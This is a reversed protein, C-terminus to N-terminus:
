GVAGRGHGHQHLRQRGDGGPTYTGAMCVTPNPDASSYNGPGTWSFSGNGTGQLTVCSTTCTITGGAAQAGPAANDLLVEASATSTCGNSGTVTLVYTGAVSVTPNQDISAFNNPGTWSYSGNGSGMLMVSTTTCTLTGGAAQAGPVDVDELVTTSASNSCGNAATVTLTYVGATSVVPAADASVFGNPGTWQFSVIGPAFFGNLTVTPNSCSLVGSLADVEPVDNDLLVEATATSTCGNAGTVVLTYTGAMCVTPNPDASSYNGPGTWSYSGNGTGQLTVCSTTCTITGGAAQAGPVDTNGIVIAEATGVCALPGNETQISTGTVTLVYSGPASVVPNQDGSTFGNPGTWTFSVNPTLSAGQLQVTPQLCSIEGGVAGASATTGDIIVDANVSTVCGNAGTVTLTYTGAVDVVPAADASTFGGPGSWSLTGTGSGQLQASLINCNITGGQASAQPAANDAIVEVTATSTCGNAGTVVLTYTGATCVTPDQDTSSFNGPGTWSYSGNGTGQLTVCPTTCSITGGAAQAGPVTTNVSVEVQDTGTCGTQPDTVLLVYVGAQNVIPTASAAGSVIGPGTWSFNLGSPVSGGNLQVTPGTTCTIEVDSGALATPPMTGSINVPLTVSCQNLDTVTVTYPGAPVNTLNPGVAGTSWVYGYGPTGGTGSASAGGTGTNCADLTTNITASLPSPQGVSFNATASCGNADTVTVSIPGASLGTATAGTQGNSWAFTFPAQGDATATVSGDSGGHCSVDGVTGSATMIRVKVVQDAAGALICADGGIIRRIYTDATVAGILAGPLDQGTAGAIDTWTLSDASIQWQYTAASGFAPYPSSVNNRVITPLVYSPESGTIDGPTSGPCIAVGQYTISNGLLDPPNAWVVLGPEYRSTSSVKTTNLAGQTLPITNSRATVITYIRCNSFKIGREGVPDYDDASGGYYTSFLLASLDHELKSFTKDNSGQNTTQLPVNPSSSVPFNTSNTYGFVYVDNNQDVNLGMMNVENGSGGLYTAGMFTQDIGMRCAYFDNSGNHSSDFVGSGSINAGALGTTVGGFYLETRATNFEMCLVSAAASSASSFYSSWTVGGASTLRQLFGASNGGRTSQRPSVTPFNTSATSGGVFIDGTADNHLMITAVDSGTGGSNRMWVLTSLDANVRFVLADNSGANTNTAGSGPNQTLLNTSTTSGCVLVDGSATTRLDYSLEGGNGGIVCAKIGTGAPNIKLVFIDDGSQAQQDISSGSFGTGGLLPFNTSGTLGTIYLNGDLGQEIAYPNDDDAGGIYTQWVRTGSGGVTSPELYKGVIIELNGNATEDFAGLTINDTTGVVRALVYIAGDNPDVWIGHGHNDGSSNTNVWTAWRLAIPDIVLPRTRDYAGLTFRVVNGQVAYAADVRQEGREGGQYVVPAPFLMEGLSTPVVLEGKDTVRLREIGKLELQIDAPDSGPKCIIDYELAGDEAAYYRVDTRPYVDKYWVEEFSSVGTAHRAADGVFYNAADGHPKLGEIRMTPLAGRFHLMWGHGRERWLLPRNPLGLRAEEEIRHGEAERASVAEPDYAKVLMGEPTALAQGLPFDARFRVHPNFQGRNETFHIRQEYAHLLADLGDAHGDHPRDPPTHAVAGTTAFVLATLLAKARRLATKPPSHHQM